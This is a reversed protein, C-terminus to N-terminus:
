MFASIAEAIDSKQQEKYGWKEFFSTWYQLQEEDCAVGDSTTAVAYVARSITKITEAHEPSITKLASLVQKGREATKSSEKSLNPDTHLTIMGTPMIVNMCALPILEEQNAVKMASVLAPPVYGFSGEDELGNNTQEFEKSPEDSSTTLYSVFFGRIGDSHSLQTSLINSLQKENFETTENPKQKLASVIKSAHSVQKMFPDNQVEEMTPLDLSSASM